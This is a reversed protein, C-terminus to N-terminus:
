RIKFKNIYLLAEKKAVKISGIVWMHWIGNIFIDHGTDKKKYEIKM